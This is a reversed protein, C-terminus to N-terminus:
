ANQLCADFKGKLELADMRGPEGIAVIQTRPRRDGWADLETIETRRGVIQLAIRKNPADATFVIGKCRYVSSPLERRVMQRLAELSFARDSEYSWSDFM